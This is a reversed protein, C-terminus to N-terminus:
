KVTEQLKELFTKLSLFNPTHQLKQLTALGSRDVIANYAAIARDLQNTNIIAPNTTLGQIQQVLAITLKPEVGTQNLTLALAKADANLGLAEGNDIITQANTDNDTFGASSTGPSQNVLEGQPNVALWPKPNATVSLSTGHALLGLVGLFGSQVLQLLMM